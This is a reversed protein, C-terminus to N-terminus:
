TPDACTVSDLLLALGKRAASCSDFNLAQICIQAYDVLPGKMDQLELRLKERTRYQVQFNPVFCMSLTVVICNLDFVPTVKLIDADLAFFHTYEEISCGLRVASGLDILVPSVKDMMVNSPKIDCHALGCSEFREGAVLLGKAIAVYHNFSLAQGQYARLIESLSIPYLPMILAISNAAHLIHSFEIIARFQVINAIFGNAHVAECAVIENQMANADEGNKLYVKGCYIEFTNTDIVRYLLARGADISCLLGDFVYGLTRMASLTKTNLFAYIQQLIKRAVAATMFGNQILPLYSGFKTLLTTCEQASLPRGILKGFQDVVNLETSKKTLLHQGLSNAKALEIEQERARLLESELVRAKWLAYDACVASCKFISIVKSEQIEKDYLLLGRM